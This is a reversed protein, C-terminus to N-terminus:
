SLFKKLDRENKINGLVIQIKVDDIKAGLQKGPKLKSYKMILDGTALKDLLSKKKMVVNFMKEAIAGGKIQNSTSTNKRINGGKDALWLKLLIPYRPDLLLRIAKKEQLEPAFFKWDDHSQILWHILGSNKRPFKYKIAFKRFIEASVEQHGPFSIAWEGRKFKRQGTSIKGADHFLTAYILDLDSEKKIVELCLMTHDFISGELHFLRSKHSIKDLGDLEPSIFKLLGTQKLLKLGLVRNESLLIKDLEAKVREGSIGQIYKARTKIAAFTNKEFKFGLQTALRVGRLMRLADEDIRKKPDGVFRLLKGKMDKLGNTPDFIKKSIPDFYLANITFDRRKADHLYDKIFEVQDPHRNDSYRGESRFTTIEVPVTDVIALISGYKKGIPKPKIGTKQLIAEIADPTADTAIDVNDSPRKLIKNRVIGGVFFAQWGDRALLKVIKEGAKEVTM